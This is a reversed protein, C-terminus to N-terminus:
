VTATIYEFVLTFTISTGTGAAYATTCSFAVAANTIGTYVASSAAGITRVQSAAAEIDGTVLGAGVAITGAGHATVGYQIIPAVGTTFPTNGTSATYVNASHVIIVKGSVAPILVQPTAFAAIVAATNLTVSVQQLQGLQTIASSVSSTTVGSDAVLGITGSAKILNGDVLAAPALVFDATTGGANPITITQSQGQATSNEITTGFNGSANIAAQMAMYGSTATIPFAEFAGIQGGTSIGSVITGGDVQLNGSTISQTPIQSASLIFNATTAGPDPISVVSAQGMAGNSITTITNGSNAVAKVELSGKLPTNPFSALYGATGSLGAQINGGNIATAADESLGGDVNTYIAIHNAITPLVVSGPSAAPILSWIASIPSGSTTTYSIEYWGVDPQAGASAVTSVCAMCPLSFSALGSQVSQNLYGTTLIQAETDNTAIYAISPSVGTTGALGTQINLIPM